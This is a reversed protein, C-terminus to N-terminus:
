YLVSNIDFSNEAVCFVGCGGLFLYLKQVRWLFARSAWDTARLNVGRKEHKLDSTVSESKKM